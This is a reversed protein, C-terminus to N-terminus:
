AFEMRLKTGKSKEFERLIDKHNDYLWKCLNVYSRSFETALMEFDIGEKECKKKM